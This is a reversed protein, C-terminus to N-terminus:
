LIPSCRRPPTGHKSEAADLESALRIFEKRYWEDPFRLGKRNGNSLRQKAQMLFARADSIYGYSALDSMIKLDTGVRGTESSVTNFHRCASRINKQTLEIRGKQYLFALREVKPQAYERRRQFAAIIRRVQEAVLADPHKDILDNVMPEIINTVHPDYPGSEISQVAQRIDKESLTGLSKKLGLSALNLAASEPRRTLAQNILDLALKPNGHQQLRSFAVVTARDSDPNKMAWYVSLEVPKGWLSTQQYCFVSLVVIIGPVTLRRYVTPLRLLLAAIPTFLFAAPLYNRHEFALELPLITSELTHGALYFLTAFSFLPFQRRLRISTGALLVLGAIAALTQPPSTLGTSFSYNDYFLGPYGPKPILLDHLYRFIIRPETLLREYPTFPRFHHEFLGHLGARYGLYGVISISPAILLLAVWRRTFADKEEKWLHRIVITEIVLLYLPLLAGNEKSFVALVGGLALASFAITWGRKATAPNRTLNRGWLYGAIGLLVFFASLMAMRQVTYLVTSAWYPHLTWLSATLLAAQYKYCEPKSAPNLILYTCLFILGGNLGHLIVNTRLFPEPDTPWTNGDFLFTLLSLPRGTPGAIGSKLFAWWERWTDVQGFNGLVSLNPIDDFFFAGGEIGPRYLLWVALILCPLTLLGPLPRTKERLTSALFNM